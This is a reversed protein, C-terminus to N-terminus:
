IPVCFSLPVSKHMYIVSVTFDTSLLVSLYHRATVHLTVSMTGVCLAILDLKVFVHSLYQLMPLARSTSVKGFTQTHSRSVIVRGNIALKLPTHAKM